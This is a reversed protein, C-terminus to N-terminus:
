REHIMHVSYARFIHFFHSKGFFYTCVTKLILNMIVFHNHYFVFIRKGTSFSSLILFGERSYEAYIKGNEHGNRTRCMEFAHVIM